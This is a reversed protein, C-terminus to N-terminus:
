DIQEVGSGLFQCRPNGGSTPFHLVACICKVQVFQCLEDPPLRSRLKGNLAYNIFIHIGFSKVFRVDEFVADGYVNGIGGHHGGVLMARVFLQVEIEVQCIGVQFRVGAPIGADTAGVAGLIVVVASGNVYAVIIFIAAVFPQFYDAPKILM